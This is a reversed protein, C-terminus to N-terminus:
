ESCWPTNMEQLQSADIYTIRVPAGFGERPGSIRASFDV